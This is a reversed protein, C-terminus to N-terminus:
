VTLDLLQVNRNCDMRFSHLSGARDRANLLVLSFQPGVQTMRGDVIPGIARPFGDYWDFSSLVINLLFACYRWIREEDDTGDQLDQLLAAIGARGPRILHVTELRGFHRLGASFSTMPEFGGLDVELVDVDGVDMPWDALVPNDFREGGLISMTLSPEKAQLDRWGRVRLVRGLADDWGVFFRRLGGLCAVPLIDNFPNQEDVFVDITVACTVPFTLNGLLAFSIEATDLRLFLTKLRTLDAEPPFLRGVGFDISSSGNINLETLSAGCVALAETIIDVDPLSGELNLITLNEFGYLTLGPSNTITLERVSPFLFPQVVPFSEYVDHDPTAEAFARDTLYLSLKQVPVPEEFMDPFTLLDSLREFDGSFSRVRHLHPRLVDAVDPLIGEVSAGVFLSLPLNQSRKLFVEAPGLDDLKIENWLDPARLAVERWHKCVHTANVLDGNFGAGRKLHSLIEVLTEIPILNILTFSNSLYLISDMPSDPTIFLRQDTVDVQGANRALVMANSEM